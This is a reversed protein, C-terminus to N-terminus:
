EDNHYHKYKRTLLSFSLILYLLIYKYVFYIRSLPIQYNKKISKFISLPIM